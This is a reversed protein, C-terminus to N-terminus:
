KITAIGKAGVIPSGFGMCDILLRARIDLSSSRVVISDRAQSFSYVTHGTLIEAGRSRVEQELQGILKDTDWLSYRGEVSATLGDYAVFDMFDYYRDVCGRLHSNEKLAEEETLWYKNRPLSEHQEILVVSCKPALASAILLGAVGGGAVIIDTSIM